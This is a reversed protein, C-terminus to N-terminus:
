QIRFMENEVGTLSDVVSQSIAGSGVRRRTADWEEAAPADRDIGDLSVATPDLREDFYSLFAERLDAASRDTFGSEVLPDTEEDHDAPGIFALADPITSELVDQLEEPNEEALTELRADLYELHFFEDEGIKQVMGEFEEHTISDLLYWTARDAAAASGLFEVWSESTDDLCAANRFEEPARNGELWDSERGQGELLRILQRVHGVEDQAASAGGIDDELSPGNLMWEAYRHSLVLKTDTIAQVFEVTSDSWEDSM